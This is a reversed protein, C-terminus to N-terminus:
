ESTGMEPHTKDAAKRGRLIQWSVFAVFALLVWHPFSSPNLVLVLLVYASWGLWILIAFPRFIWLRVWTKARPPLISGSLGFGVLLAALILPLLIMLLDSTSNNM